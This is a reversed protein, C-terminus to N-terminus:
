SKSRLVLMEFTLTASLFVELKDMHLLMYSPSVTFTKQFCRGSYKPPHHTHSHIKFPPVTLETILFFWSTNTWYTFSFLFFCRKKWFFTFYIFFFLQGYTFAKIKSKDRCCNPLIRSTSIIKLSRPELTLEM